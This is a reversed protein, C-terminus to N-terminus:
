KRYTRRFEDITEKFFSIADEIFKKNSIDVDSLKLEDSPYMSGGSKLFELYRQVAVEGEKEIDHVIKCASSLGIAYKYVYFNYYFHPIRMWEYKILEDVYVRPGFYTKVLDYYKSSLYESTLVQGKEHDEYMDKEFEAFM